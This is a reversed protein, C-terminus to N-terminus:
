VHRKRDAKAPPTSGTLSTLSKQSSPPATADEEKEEQVPPYREWADAFDKRHYGRRSVLGIRVSAPRIEYQDLLEALERDTIPKGKINSWPSEEIDTLSRIVDATHMKEEDGLVRHMYSLLRRGLSGGGDRQSLRVLRVAAVRAKHVWEPGSVDAVALLSEWVDADRDEIDGPVLANWKEQDWSGIAKRLSAAWEAIQARLKEGEPEHIRRRFSEVDEGKKRKRMRIAVSRTLVTDPLKGLGALGKACYAPFDETEINGHRTVCRGAMAGKHHGANILGRLEENERAKEGFVTDLEDFLITPLGDPHSIRRFIYAASFNSSLIANPVLLKSIELARTKGSAPEPSLFAIRPTNEWMDMLHAHAIWLTHAVKADESPYVIFRGLFSYIADLTNSM